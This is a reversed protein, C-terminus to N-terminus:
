SMEADAQAPSARRAFKGHKGFKLDRFTDCIFFCIFFASEIACHGFVGKETTEFIVCGRVFVLCSGSKASGFPLVLPEM